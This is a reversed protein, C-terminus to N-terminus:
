HDEKPLPYQSIKMTNTINTHDIINETKIDLLLFFLGSLNIANFFLIPLGNKM